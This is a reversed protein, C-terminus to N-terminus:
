DQFDFCLIRGFHSSVPVWVPQGPNDVEVSWPHERYSGELIDLWKGAHGPSIQVFKENGSFNLIVILAEKSNWRRYVLVPESKDFVEIKAFDRNERLAPHLNRLQGLHRYLTVLPLVTPSEENESVNYFYDWHLPRAARVRAMGNEPLGYNEAFEQGSCIMPIGVSTMLAIAFPQLKWWPQGDLGHRFEFGGSKERDEQQILFFLRLEDHSEIFQVVHTTITEGDVDKESSYGLQNFRVDGLLLEKPFSETIEGTSIVKVTEESLRKEWNGNIANESVQSLQYASEGLDESIQIIRSAAAPAPVFRNYNKSERYTALTLKRLSEFTPRNEHSYWDIHGDKEVPRKDLYGNVHDYRFGDIHYEKMWFRNVATFFEGTSEMRWDNKKAFNDYASVIPNPSLKLENDEYFRDDKWLDFFREYGIQYPFMRDAHAYVVDLVVAVNNQHCENVLYRFGAPGGFREEPAMYFVPVYGWRNPEAISSVPMLEIANVGLSKLYPIRGAVGYFSGSFEAVNIEYLILDKTPPVVFQQDNWHIHGTDEIRFVSFVGADTERACPDGFFLSGVTKGDEKSPGTIRFRYLWIGATLEAWESRWLSKPSEGWEFDEQDNVPQLPMKIAPVEVDFQGKKGIIYVRVSFGSEKRINPLYIRFRVRTGQIEPGTESINFM